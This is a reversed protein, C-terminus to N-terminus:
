NQCSRIPNPTHVASAQERKRKLGLEWEWLSNDFMLTAWGHNYLMRCLMASWGMVVCCGERQLESEWDWLSNNLRLVRGRTVGCCVMGNSCLVRGESTWEGLGM